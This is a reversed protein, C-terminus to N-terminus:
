VNRSLATQYTNVATTLSTVEGDTLGTGIFAFACEKTGLCLKLTANPAANAETATVTNQSTGDRYSEMDSASRRSLVWLKQSNGAPTNNTSSAGSYAYGYHQSNSYVSWLSLVPTGTGGAADTSIDPNNESAITRNYVGMSVSYEDVLDTSPNFFTDAYTGAGKVMGTSAHTLTGTYTLRFAADTDLPNKLNWKHAAATGGVIPYIAHFKSWGIAKLSVVLADVADKQPTTLGTNAAFFTDSETQYGSSVNNTVASDTFSVLENASGDVTAGTTSDYSILLTDGGAAASGMTFTWTTGSGTVSSISWASGNKKASWGATTVTVSESFVVVLSSPAANEVTKSSVTPATVDGGGLTDMYTKLAAVTIKKMVGTTPDAIGIIDASDPASETTLASLKVAM